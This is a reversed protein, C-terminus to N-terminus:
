EGQLLAILRAKAAQATKEAPTGTLYALADNWERLDEQRPRLPELKKALSGRQTQSLFRLDSLYMCGMQVSILDLLSGEMVMGTEVEM